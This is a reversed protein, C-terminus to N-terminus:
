LDCGVSRQLQEDPSLRRERGKPNQRHGCPGAAMQVNDMCRTPRARGTTELCNIIALTVVSIEARHIKEKQPIYRHRMEISVHKLSTICDQESIISVDPSTITDM